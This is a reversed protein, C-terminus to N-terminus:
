SAKKRPRPSRKPTAAPNTLGALAAQLAFEPVAAVLEDFTGAAAVRGESMFFIRHAERITSLRHAVTILTVKGQLTRIAKSVAAETATDLASTAEDMVLVLPEAYLARAIGLRQRQGGSLALGREGVMGEIGGERGEVLTLLQAQKLAARVRERDIDDTWSLAVNQAISADFLAVDQPVYGVRSRWSQTLERLDTGDISIRGATPEILGLVLDVITSKGAGSSGVFAVSSGMPIQLELDTVADPLEPAYRFSVKEFRMVDPHPALEKSAREKLHQSAKEAARIERVVAEAHPQNSSVQSIVAQFRVISPALRFGALGFIAVAGIAATIQGGSILFGTLGVLVVGGIIGAELVYRPVQNLFQINARARSTQVRNVRVVEAIEATKDRLTVEKLAGIMEAVLRVNKVSYTQNIRGAQRSRRTVWFFLIGGILMLYVFAVAALIPQAIALVVLISFFTMFEGLVTSGPLLFGSITVAVSSDSMRILETSNRKLREVWPARIYSDFLRAGIALEYRAFRRTASWLLTIALVSKLVVLVCVLGLMVLLGTDSVTGILPLVLSGGALIPATVAALLGLAGADLLSLAALAVMYVILFRRASSPLISLVERFVDIV